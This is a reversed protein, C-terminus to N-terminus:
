YESPLLIVGNTFYLKIEPLPFDTYDIAQAYIRRGNGDECALLATRDNEVTLKWLQFDEGAVATSFKQAIAISDLLWYAGGQEALYRAGDTYLVGPALSHRYWKETGTFQMLHSQTLHKSGQTM